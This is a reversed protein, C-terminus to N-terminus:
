HRKKSKPFATRRKKTMSLKKVPIKAKLRIKLMKKKQLIVRVEQISSIQITKRRISKRKYKM